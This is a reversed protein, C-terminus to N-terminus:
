ASIGDPDPLELADGKGEFLTGGPGLNRRIIKELRSLRSTIEEEERIRFNIELIAGATLRLTNENESKLLMVLERAAALGAAKLLGIAQDFIEAKTQNLTKKFVPDQLWRFATSRAIKAKRSAAEIALGGCLLQILELQKASLKEPVTRKRRM